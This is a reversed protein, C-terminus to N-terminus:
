KMERYGKEWQETDSYYFKHIEASIPFSVTYHISDRKFYYLVDFGDEESIGIEELSNPLRKHEAKFMEIKEVLVKGEHKLRKERTKRTLGFFSIVLLFALLFLIYKYRRM